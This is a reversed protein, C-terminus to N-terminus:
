RCSQLRARVCFACWDLKEAPQLATSWWPCFQIVEADSPKMMLLLLVAFANRFGAPM